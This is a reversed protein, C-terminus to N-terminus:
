PCFTSRLSCTSDVHLVNNMGDWGANFRMSTVTELDLADFRRRNIKRSENGCVMYRPINSTRQSRSHEIAGKDYGITCLVYHDIDVAIFLSHINTISFM